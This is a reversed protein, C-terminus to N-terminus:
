AHTPQDHKPARSARWDNLSSSCKSCPQLVVETGLLPKIKLTQDPEDCELRDCLDCQFAKGM